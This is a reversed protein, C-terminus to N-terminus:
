DDALMIIMLDKIMSFRLINREQDKLGETANRCTALINEVSPQSSKLLTLREEEPLRVRSMLRYLEALELQNLEDDIRAMAFLVEFYQLKNKIPMERLDRIKKKLM